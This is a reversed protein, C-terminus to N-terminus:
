KAQATLTGPTNNLKAQEYAKLLADHLLAGVIEAGEATPHLYDGGMLRPRAERWRAVTGEGGMATFTDFFACGTEAALKRQAAVLKPITPRTIIQGGAGRKGRDMPAVFLLSVEPLAARLRRVVERTDQEYQDMPWNEFESENAGYALIVLDPQRHRLQEIWHNEDLYHSLLGIFAGNVGLSDYQVGREGSDLVVGFLRVEGNGAPNIALTHEGPEVNVRQFGSRTTESATTVRGQPQGDVAITFEGGNPQALYYLDFGAVSHGFEGTTVTSFSATANPANATFSAGGFGFLHEGRSIWMPNSQWGRAELVVGDHQYWGWPKAALVFGHGADGFRQQLKRRVTATIGDNTIPSDGYHSIRAQGGTTEVHQLTAFFHALARGSPDEIEGPQAPQIATTQNIVPEPTAALAAIVTGGGSHQFLGLVSEPVLLRYRNLTPICYPLVALAAFCALTRATKSMLVHQTTTASAPRLKLTLQQASIM